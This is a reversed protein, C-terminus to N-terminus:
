ILRFGARSGEIYLLGFDQQKGDSGLMVLAPPATRVELEDFRDSLAPDDSDELQQAVRAKEEFDARLPEFAPGARFECRVNWMERQLEELEGVVEDGNM